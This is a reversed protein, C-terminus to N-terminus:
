SSHFWCKSKKPELTMFCYLCFNLLLTHYHMGSIGAGPTHFLLISLKPWGPSCLLVRDELVFAFYLISSDTM